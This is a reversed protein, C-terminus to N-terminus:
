CSYQWINPKNTVPTYYFFDYNYINGQWVWIIIKSVDHEKDLM